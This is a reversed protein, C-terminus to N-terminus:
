FEWNVGVMLRRGERPDGLRQMYDTDGLNSLALYAEYHDTFAWTAKATAVFYGPL